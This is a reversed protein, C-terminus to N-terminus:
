GHGRGHGRGRGPLAAVPPAQTTPTTITTPAAVGLRSALVALDSQLTVAESALVSGDRVAAAIVGSAQQLDAAARATSGAEADTVAQGALSSLRGATGADIAGGAVGAQLDALLAHLAQAAGSPTTSTPQQKAVGPVASTAPPTRSTPSSRPFLVVAAILAAALAALVLTVRRRTLVPSKGRLAPIGPFGPDGFQATPDHPLVATPSAPAAPATAAPTAGAPTPYAAPSGWPNLAAAELDVLAAVAERAPPRRAPDRELMGALVNRWSVPLSPLPVPERLRRAVIEGPPGEYVRHGTLCELLVIGLSWVDAPPGVDLGELQEPAMYSVTGVTTGAVTLTSAGALRAIGFDALLVGGARAILINAPKVDRHVIGRSHIHALASAVASGTAATDEPTLAGALLREALTAGDVFATVLYAQGGVLGSALPRLLNPHDLNQLARAERAMREALVPEGSRLIKVAVEAGTEEDVAHYVDSMGGRGVLRELRYRSGVLDNVATM